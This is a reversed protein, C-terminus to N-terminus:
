EEGCSASPPRVPKPGPRQKPMTKAELPSWGRRLRANIISRSIGSEESAEMETQLVGGFDLRTTVSRNRVQQTPTAWRCNTLEYNGDNDPYRDLSHEPSPKPGMDSLFSEFSGLWRDCVSIGRGGYSAYKSNKPNTCRQIMGAWSEYEPTRQSHGHKLHTTAGHTRMYCGCSISKGLRLHKGTTETTQGCSCQCFWLTKRDRTGARRIVTLQGYVKGTEDISNHAPM